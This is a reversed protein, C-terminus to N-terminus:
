AFRGRFHLGEGASLPSVKRSRDRDDEAMNWNVMVESGRYNFCDLDKEVMERDCLQPVGPLVVVPPSTWGGHETGFQLNQTFPLTRTSLFIICTFRSNIAL